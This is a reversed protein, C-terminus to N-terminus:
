RYRRGCDAAGRIATFTHQLPSLALDRAGVMQDGHWHAVAIAVGAARHFRCIVGATGSGWLFFIHASPRCDSLVAGDRDIASFRAGEAVANSM